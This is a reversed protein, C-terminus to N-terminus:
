LAVRCSISSRSSFYRAINDKQVGSSQASHNAIHAPSPGKQSDIQALRNALAGNSQLLPERADARFHLPDLRLIEVDREQEQAFYVVALRRADAPDGAVTGGGM